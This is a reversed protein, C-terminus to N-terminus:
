SAIIKVLNMCVLTTSTTHLLNHIKRMKNTIYNISKSANEGYLFGYSSMGGFFM